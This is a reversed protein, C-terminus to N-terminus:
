RRIWRVPFCPPLRRGALKGRVANDEFLITHPKKNTINEIAKLEFHNDSQELLEYVGSFTALIIKGSQTTLGYLVFQNNLNINQFTRTKNDFCLASDGCGSTLFCTSITMTAGEVGSFPMCRGEECGTPDVGSTM